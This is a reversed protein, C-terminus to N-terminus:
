SATTAPEPKENGQVGKGRTLTVQKPRLHPLSPLSTKAWPYHAGWSRGCRRCPKDRFGAHDACGQPAPQTGPPRLHMTNSAADRMDRRQALIARAETGHRMFARRLEAPAETGRLEIRGADSLSVRVGLAELGALIEHVGDTAPADRGTM